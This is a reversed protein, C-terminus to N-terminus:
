TQAMLKKFRRSFPTDEFGRLTLAEVTKQMTHHAPRGRRRIGRNILFMVQRETLKRPTVFRGLANRRVSRNRFASFLQREMAWRYLLDHKTQNNRIDLGKAGPLRGREQIQADPADNLFTLGYKGGVVKLEYRFGEFYTFHTGSGYPRNYPVRRSITLKAQKRAEKVLEQGLYEMAGKTAKQVKSQIYTRDLRNKYEKNVLQVYM